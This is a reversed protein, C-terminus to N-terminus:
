VDKSEELKKLISDIAEQQEDKALGNDFHEVMCSLWERERETLELKYTKTM